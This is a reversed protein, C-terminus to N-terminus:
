VVSVGTGREFYARLDEPTDLDVLVDPDHVEVTKAAPGIISDLRMRSEHVEGHAARLVNAVAWDWALFVPHGHKGHFGPRAVGGIEALRSWVEPGPVPTDIPLVFVGEPAPTEHRELHRLGELISAFMPLGEDSAVIRAPADPQGVIAARVQKSMVWTVPAGVLHLREAQARWWPGGPVTMLAKPVGMRVGRGAALVLVHCRRLTPL